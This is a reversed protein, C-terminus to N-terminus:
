IVELSLEQIVECFDMDLSSSGERKFFAHTFPIIVHRNDHSWTVRELPSLNVIELVFAWFHAM